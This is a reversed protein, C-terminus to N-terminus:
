SYHSSYFCTCLRWKKNTGKEAALTAVMTRPSFRKWHIEKAKRSGVIHSLFFFLPCVQLRLQGSGLAEHPRERVPAARRFQHVRVQVVLGHVQAGMMPGVSFFRNAVQLKFLLLLLLLLRQLPTCDTARVRCGCKCALHKEVEVLERGAYTMRGAGAYQTKVVQPPLSKTKPHCRALTIPVM